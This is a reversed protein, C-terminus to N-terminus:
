PAGTSRRRRVKEIRDLLDASPPTAQRELEAWQERRRQLYSEVESVNDLYFALAGYVQALTLREFDERISEPSAGDLFAYVLSELAVKTTGVYYVGNRIEVYPSM